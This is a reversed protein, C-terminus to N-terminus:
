SQKKLRPFFKKAYERNEPKELFSKLWVSLEGNDFDIGVFEGVWLCHYLKDSYFDETYAYADIPVLDNDLLGYLQGNTEVMAAFLLANRTPNMSFLYAKGMPLKEKKAKSVM